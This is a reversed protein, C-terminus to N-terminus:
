DNYEIDNFKEDVTYDFPDDIIVINVGKGTIGAEKLNKMGSYYEECEEM